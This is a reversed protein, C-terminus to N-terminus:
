ILRVGLIFVLSVAIAAVAQPHACISWQGSQTPGETSRTLAMFQCPTGTQTHTHTHALAVVLNRLYMM